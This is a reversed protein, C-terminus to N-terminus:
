MGCTATEVTWIKFLFLFLFIHDGLLLKEFELVIIELRFAAAQEIAPELLRALIYFGKLKKNRQGKVVHHGKASGQWDQTAM